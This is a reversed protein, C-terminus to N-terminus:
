VIYITLCLYWILRGWSQARSSFTHVVGPVKKPTGAAAPAGTV